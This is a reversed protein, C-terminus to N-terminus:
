RGRLLRDRRDAVRGHSEDGDDDEAREDDEGGNDDALTLVLRAHLQRAAAGRGDAGRAM